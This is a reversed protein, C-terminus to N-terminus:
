PFTLGNKIAFIRFVRLIEGSPSSFSTRGDQTGAPGSLGAFQRSSRPSLPGKRRVVAKCFMYPQKKNCLGPEGGEEGGSGFMRKQGM